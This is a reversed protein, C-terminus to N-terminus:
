KINLCAYLTSPDFRGRMGERGKWEEEDRMDSKGRLKMHNREGKKKKKFMWYTWKASITLVHHLVM